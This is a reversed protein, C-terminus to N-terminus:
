RLSSKTPSPRSRRRVAPRLTQAFPKAEESAVRPAVDRPSTCAGSLVTIPSGSSRSSDKQEFTSLCQEIVAKCRRVTYAFSVQVTSLCSVPFKFPVLDGIELVDISRKADNIILQIAKDRAAPQDWAYDVSTKAALRYVQSSKSAQSGEAEQRRDKQCFTLPYDSGNELRFPWQEARYLYVFISPGDVQVEARVLQTEGPKSPHRLRFHVTGIDEMNIPPSRRRGMLSSCSTSSFLILSWEANLGSYAITLLKADANRLFQFGQREDTQLTAQGRPPVGYERFSIPEPLHNKVFFRPSLTVVKTLKYKGTGEAWSLGIHVM